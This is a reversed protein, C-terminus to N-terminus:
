PGLISLKRSTPQLFGPKVQKVSPFHGGSNVSVPLRQMAKDFFLGGEPSLGDSMSFTQEPSQDSELRMVVPDLQHELLKWVYTLTLVQVHFVNYKGKWFYYLSPQSLALIELHVHGNM